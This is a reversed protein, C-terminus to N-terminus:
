VTLALLTELTKPTNAFNLIAVILKRMDTWRGTQEDMWISCSLDWQVSQWPIQHYKPIKQIYTSFNWTENFDSLFSPDKVHLRIYIIIDKETKIRILFIESSILASFLFVYKINMFKKRFDHRRHSLTSFHQSVLCAVYSM